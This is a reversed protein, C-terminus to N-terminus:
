LDALARDKATNEFVAGDAFIREGGDGNQERDLFAHFSETSIIPIIKGGM